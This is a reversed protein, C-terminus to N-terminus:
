TRKLLAEHVSTTPGLVSERHLRGKEGGPMLPQRNKFNIEESFDHIIGICGYSNCEENNM